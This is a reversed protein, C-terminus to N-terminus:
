SAVILLMVMFFFSGTRIAASVAQPPSTTVFVVSERFWGSCGAAESVGAPPPIPAPNRRGGHCVIKRRIREDPKRLKRQAAKAKGKVARARQRRLLQLQQKQRPRLRLLQVGTIVRCLVAIDKVAVCDAPREVPIQRAIGEDKGFARQIVGSRIGNDRRHGPGEAPINVHLQFALREVAVGGNQSRQQISAHAFEVRDRKIVAAVPQRHQLQLLQLRPGAHPRHEQVSFLRFYIGGDAIFFDAQPVAGAGAQGPKVGAAAQNIILLKGRQGAFRWGTSGFLRRTGCRGDSRAGQGATLGAIDWRRRETETQCQM